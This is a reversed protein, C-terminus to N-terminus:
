SRYAFGVYENRERSLGFHYVTTTGPLPGHQAELKAAVGRLARPTHHDLMEVDLSLMSSQVATAWEQGIHALGTSAIVTGLHPAFFVKSVLLYPEGETTTALTDTLVMVIEPHLSFMLLSM